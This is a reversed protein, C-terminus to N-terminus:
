FNLKKCVYTPKIQLKKLSNNITEWSPNKHDFFDSHIGTSTILLSDIGFNVAGRIDHFLSDGIALIRSKKINALKDFTKKYIEVSPKGLHTKIIM